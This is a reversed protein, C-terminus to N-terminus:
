CEARAIRQMAPLTVVEAISDIIWDPNEDALTLGQNYGYSVVAVPCLAARAAAIDARSDGVYLFEDPGVGFHEYGAILLAPAPKRQEPQDACLVLPFRQALGAQDLLPLTFASAKNTICCLRIGSAELALLGEMVGPYVRSRQFLREAYRERFLQRSATLYGSGPVHGASQALAGAVLREVGGGILSKIQREPLPHFGLAELMANAAAAIDAASDVLTGDLDFAAARIREVLKAM